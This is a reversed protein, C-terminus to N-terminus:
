PAARGAEAVHALRPVAGILTRTYHDGPRRILDGARGEDCVHGGNLVIIRDALSAVVGLDHSIFLISLDLEARLEELLDLVAAQVSVDLASTIEDCILADPRAVLARAIAVRQREGGSLERPYRGSLRPSLRVRELATAVGQRAESRTQGLLVEAPRAITDGVTHRPNLSDTPNQFVIQIRRRAERPRQRALPALPAADLLVQGQEPAHLGAICRAITTKGSGSEGVLALCEGRMMTLSVEAAVTVKRGRSRHAATLGRVEVLAGPDPRDRRTAAPEFDLPPTREAEFCRVSRGPGIRTLAPLEAACRAVQQGCRAVFACEAPRREGLSIAIGDIGKLRRPALHDPVAMVLGRTYPHRPRALVESTPGEEVVRGAYMVALRDAISGVVALDHSVYLLALDHNNRLHDIQDLIVAQTVVDLGTTPEDFVALVPRTALAMAIAVRQQQGGSLQHPFRRAFDRDGPLGVGSLADRVTVATSGGAGAGLRLV